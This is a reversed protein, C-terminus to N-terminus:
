PVPEVDWREAKQTAVNYAYLATCNAVLTASRYNGSALRRSYSGDATDFTGNSRVRLWIGDEANTNTITYVLFAADGSLNGTTMWATAEHGLGPEEYARVMTWTGAMRQWEEPTTDHIFFMRQDDPTTRGPFGDPFGSPLPASWTANDGQKMVRKVRQGTVGNAFFVYIVDGGPSLTAISVGGAVNTPAYTGFPADTYGLSDGALWSIAFSEDEAPSFGAIMKGPVEVMNAIAMPERCPVPMAGDGDMTGGDGADDPPQDDGLVSGPDPYKCGAVLGVAVIWKM